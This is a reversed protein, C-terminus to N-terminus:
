VFAIGGKFSGIIKGTFSDFQPKIVVRGSTDIFGIKDDDREGQVAALGESFEEAVRYQSAGRIVSGTEDINYFWGNENRVAARGESFDGAVAFRPKIIIRGKEDIYGWLGRM